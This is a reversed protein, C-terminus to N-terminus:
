RQKNTGSAKGLLGLLIFIGAIVAFHIEAAKEEKAAKARLDEMVQQHLDKMFPPPVTFDNSGNLDKFQPIPQLNLPQWNLPQTTAKASTCLSLGAFIVAVAIIRRVESM